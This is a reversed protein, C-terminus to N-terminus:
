SSIAGTPDGLQFAFAIQTDVVVMRRLIDGDSESLREAFGQFFFAANRTVKRCVHRHIFRKRSTDDVKAPTRRQDEFGLEVPLVNAVKRSFHDFMEELRKGLVDFRIDM